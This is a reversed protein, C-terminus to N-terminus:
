PALQHPASDGQSRRVSPLRPMAAKADVASADYRVPKFHDRSPVEDPFADIAALAEVSAATLTKYHVLLRKGAHKGSCAEQLADRACGLMDVPQGSM